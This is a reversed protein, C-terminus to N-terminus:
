ETEEPPIPPLYPKAKLATTKSYVLYLMITIIVEGPRIDDTLIFLYITLGVIALGLFRDFLGQIAHLIENM